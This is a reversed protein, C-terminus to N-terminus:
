ARAQAAACHLAIRQLLGPRLAAPLDHAMDPIAAFEAGAIHAATDRGAAIPVVPDCEGHIVLTPAQIRQLWARRDGSTLVATWQRVIGAPDFARRVQRLLRARCQAAPERLTPSSILREIQELHNLLATEDHGPPPTLMAQM